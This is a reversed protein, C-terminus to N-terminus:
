RNKWALTRNITAIPYGTGKAVARISAGPHDALYYAVAVNCNDGVPTKDATGGSVGHFMSVNRKATGGSISQQFPHKVDATNEEAITMDPYPLLGRREQELQLLDRQQTIYQEHKHKAQVLSLRHYVSWVFLGALPLSLASWVIASPYTLTRIIPWGNILAVTYLSLGVIDLMVFIRVAIYRRIM